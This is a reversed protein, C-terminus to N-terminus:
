PVLRIPIDARVLWDDGDPGARLTGGLLEARDRMGALGIGGEDRGRGVRATASVPNRIDIHAHDEDVQVCIRAAAGPTHKVVNALSEQVIRYASLGAAPSVCGLDGACDFHVGLGADAFDAVLDPIDAAGPMAATPAGDGPALLGITRRIEALSQRGLREAELLARAADAPDRELALRAGTLHLMTVALSHAIVDHLERAIRQREEFAAREGIQELLRLRSQLLTMISWTFGFALLWVISGDFRGAVDFGALLSASAAAVAISQWMPAIVASEGILIVLFFPAADFKAPYWALVAVAGITLTARVLFPPKRPLACSIWLVPPIAAVIVRAPVSLGSRSEFAVMVALATAIAAEVLPTMRPWLEVDQPAATAELHMPALM